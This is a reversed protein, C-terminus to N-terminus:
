QVDEEVDFSPFTVTFTSGQGPASELSITGQNREVMNRVIALGLGSGGTSRSRAKDVRYFREFIHSQAEEPIGMGTDAVQLIANDGDRFSRVTLTGDPLNYKIGNEVLNFIIQYLDDELILISCDEKCDVIIKIDNQEAIGQLMRVVRDVTPKMFTIECDGDEQTEIHSLSLLKLTMRNLRDAENGIDSAFERVTEMDMDNQLISDTLLKISALPTKLEHSADSVFQRRKNESVQLRETLSNFEDGLLTLEDRGGMQVRHSYDGSRIIRMSALVRRLRTSFGTAFLVSFLIVAIELILTITFINKQLSDIVGGQTADYEMMYVCGVIMGHSLIPTAARSQMIGDQYQWSFVDNGSRGDLAQVIEPLVVYSGLASDASYSDYLVLGSRDTVLLRTVRLSDMKQVAATVNSANLVELASIEQAAFQCKEAMAKEKNNYFLKQSSGSCYINLFLLVVSTICVYVLAYYFQTNKYRRGTTENNRSTIAM